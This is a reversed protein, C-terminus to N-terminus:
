YIGFPSDDEIQTDFFNDDTKNNQDEKEYEDERKINDSLKFAEFFINEKPTKPTAVEGNTRDIKIFKVSNPTRFPTSPKDRLAKKMFDIFIPLAITSGTEKEGLSRPSDYGVYVTAVLDPTFGVFWSDISNNTTGTKGGIIKGIQRARRATGREVVGQLMYTTQYATAADIIQEKDDDIFPVGINKGQMNDIICNDCIRKDRKYIILGNRDQIKEIMQPEIIKGGNVIMSYATAIKILNTESSGLVLSYIEEPNDSLKFKKITNAVKDLGVQQALRVTTVNRSKELGTRLTTPGFFKGSYNTPKYPPLDPGQDLSIEEDMIISAPTFGNELASLYGFTKMTSGTQRYAQTARNFQNKADIYGGSMALIRGSHPDMAIFAGNVEPIQKLDYSLLCNQDINDIESDYCDKNNILKNPSEAVLILDGIAFIENIKTPEPGKENINIYKQAWKVNELLIVGKNNNITGIYAKDDDIKLIVAKIWNKNHLQNIEFSQLNEHWNNTVDINSIPGRYGHKMDYNELGIQLAEQAIKQMQPNLTTKVSIGDEFVNDSGYMESLEKKVADAFFNAQTITNDINDTLIIPKQTAIEGEIPTIFGEDVMRSIVWDRRIKAKEINKRPDLKSPAKPLTALLAIEEIELNNISKNFYSQAAAAIGYSGSGLYIQNLYLEIVQDKTFNQTMRIALIAEKIKREITRDRTLLFNKVVQQTITSAGGLNSKNKLSSVINNYATRIIAKIDIGPHSYFNSDEAALFASIVNKPILEIPIFIRKEKSFETILTDNAAYIRTTIMPKYEKLQQYNPLDKSYHNFIATAIIFLLLLSIASLIIIIKSLKKIKKM